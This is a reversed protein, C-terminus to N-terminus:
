PNRRDEPPILRELDRMHRSIRDLLRAGATRPGRPAQTGTLRRLRGLFRAADGEFGDEEGSDSDGRAQVAEVAAKRLADADLVDGTTVDTCVALGDGCAVAWRFGRASVCGGRGALLFQGRRTAGIVAREGQRLAPSRRRLIRNTTWMFSLLSTDKHGQDWYVRM